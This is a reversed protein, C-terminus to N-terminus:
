HPLPGRRQRLSVLEQVAVAILSNAQDIAAGARDREAHDGLLHAQGWRRMADEHASVTQRIRERLREVEDRQGM